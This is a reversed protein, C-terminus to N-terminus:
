CNGKYLLGAAQAYYMLKSLNCEIEEYKFV